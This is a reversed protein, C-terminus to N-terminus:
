QYIQATSGGTGKCLIRKAVFLINRYFKEPEQEILDGSYNKPCLIINIQVKQM